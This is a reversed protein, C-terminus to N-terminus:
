FLHCRSNVFFFRVMTTVASKQFFYVFLYVFLFFCVSVCLHLDMTFITLLVLIACDRPKRLM